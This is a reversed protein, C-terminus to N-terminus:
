IRKSTAPTRGCFAKSARAVMIGLDGRFSLSIWCRAVAEGGVVSWRQNLYPGDKLDRVVGTPPIGLAHLDQLLCLPLYGGTAVKHHNRHFGQNSLMPSLDLFTM